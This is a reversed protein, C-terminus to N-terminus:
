FWAIKNSKRWFELFYLSLLKRSVDYGADFKSFLEGICQNNFKCAKSYLLAEAHVRLEEGKSFWESFPPSFGNKSNFKYEKPLVKKGYDQLFVKGGIRDVRDADSLSAAFIEISPSLFPSRAEISNLMSCRDVKLLIDNPLYNDKDFCMMQNLLSTKETDNMWLIKRVEFSTAGLLREVSSTDFLTPLSVASLLNEASSMLAFHRGAVGEKISKKVVSALVRKVPRPIITNLQEILRARYYRRYGGFLEDAGDGGLVVKCKNSVENYIGYTPLISPDNIVEDFDNLLSHLQDVSLSQIVLEHHETKFTKAILRANASDVNSKKQNEFRVNFTALKSQQEAAKAVILSSDLGGSLLVGAPVDASLRLGVSESLLDDFVSHSIEVKQQLLSGCEIQQEKISGSRLDISMFCSPGVKKIGEVLTQGGYVSGHSLYIRVGDESLMNRCGPQSLLPKIESSFFLCNDLVSYYLPKEGFRDRFLYVSDAKTDYIAISFMGDVYKVFNCGWHLYACMLVETDGSTQFSHGYRSLENRLSVFNYIEGNFILITTKDKSYMPQASMDTLDQIKLRRHFFKVQGNKSCYRGSGDPGRHFLLESAGTLWDLHHSQDAGGFNCGGLIGCM